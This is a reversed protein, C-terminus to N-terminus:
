FGVLRLAVLVVAALYAAALALSTSEVARWKRHSIRNNGTQRAGARTVLRQRCQDRLRAARRADPAGVPLRGLLDDLERDDFMM